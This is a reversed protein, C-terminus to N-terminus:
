RAPSPSGRFHRHSPVLSHTFGTQWPLAAAKSRLATPTSSTCSSEQWYSPVALGRLGAPVLEAARRKSLAGMALSVSDNCGPICLIALHADHSMSESPFKRAPAPIRALVDEMNRVPFQADAAMASPRSCFCYALSLHIFNIEISHQLSPMRQKEWVGDGSESDRDGKGNTNGENTKIKSKLSVQDEVILGIHSFDFIVFDGARAKETEPLVLLNRQKAWKEWGFASADRCRWKDALSFSGLNFLTRVSEDELWERM